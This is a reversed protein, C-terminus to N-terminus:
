CERLSDSSKASDAGSAKWVFAMKTCKVRSRRIAFNVGLNAVVSVPSGINGPAIPKGTEKTAETCAAAAAWM